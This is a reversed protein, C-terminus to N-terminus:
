ATVYLSGDLKELKATVHYSWVSAYTVVVSMVLSTLVIGNNVSVPVPSTFLAVITTRESSPFYLVVPDVM